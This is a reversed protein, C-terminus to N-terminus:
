VNDSLFPGLADMERMSFKHGSDALDYLNLEVPVNVEIEQNNLETAEKEYLTPDALVILNPDENGEPNKGHVVEGDENRKSHKDVLAKQQTLYDQMHPELAKAIKMLKFSATVSMKTNSLAGLLEMPNRLEFNKLTITM